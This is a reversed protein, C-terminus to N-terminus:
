LQVSNQSIQIPLTDSLQCLGLMAATVAFTQFVSSATYILLIFSLSMGMLISFAGFLLVLTSASLRNFGASMILVFGLPALTVVWGLGTMGTESVLMRILNENSAFYWAVFATIALALGMWSFVNAIFTKPVAYTERRSEVTQFPNQSFNM